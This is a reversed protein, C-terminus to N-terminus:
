FNCYDRLLLQPFKNKASKYDQDILPTYLNSAIVVQLHRVRFRSLITIRLFRAKFGTQIDCIKKLSKGV